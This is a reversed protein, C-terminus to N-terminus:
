EWRTVGSWEVGVQRVRFMEGGEEVSRKADEVDERSRGRKAQGKTVM